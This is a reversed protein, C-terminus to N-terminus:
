GTHPCRATDLSGIGFDMNPLSDAVYKLSPKVSDIKFVKDKLPLDSNAVISEFASQNVLNLEGFSKTRSSKVSSYEPFIKQAPDSLIKEYSAIASRYQLSTLLSDGARASKVLASYGPWYEKPVKFEAQNKADCIPVQFLFLQYLKLTKPFGLVISGNGDTKLTSKWAAAITQGNQYTSVKSLASEVFDADLVWYGAPTVYFYYYQDSNM